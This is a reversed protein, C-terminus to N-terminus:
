GSEERMKIKINSLRGQLTSFDKMVRLFVHNHRMEKDKYASQKTARMMEDHAEPEFSFGQKIATVIENTAKRSITFEDNVTTTPIRVGLGGWSAPLSFFLIIIGYTPLTFFCLLM